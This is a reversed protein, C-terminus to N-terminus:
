NLHGCTNWHPTVSRFRFRSGVSLHDSATTTKALLKTAACRSPRIFFSSQAVIQPVKNMLESPSVATKVCM